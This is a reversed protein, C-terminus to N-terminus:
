SRRTSPTRLSRWSPRLRARAQAVAEASRAVLTAVSCEVTHRRGPSTGDDHFSIQVNPPMHMAATNTSSDTMTDEHDEPGCTSLVGLEHRHKHLSPHAGRAELQRSAAAGGAALILCPRM